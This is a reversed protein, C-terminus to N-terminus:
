AICSKLITAMVWHGCWILSSSLNERTRDQEVLALRFAAKKKRAFWAKHYFEDFSYCAQVRSGKLPAELHESYPDFM